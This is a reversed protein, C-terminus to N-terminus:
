ARRELQRCAAAGELAASGGASRRLPHRPVRDGGPSSGPIGKIQGNKTTVPGNLAAAAPSATLAAGALALALAAAGTMLKTRM